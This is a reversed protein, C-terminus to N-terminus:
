PDRPPDRPHGGMPLGKQMDYKIQEGYSLPFYRESIVPSICLRCFAEEGEETGSYPWMCVEFRWEEDARRRRKAVPLTEEDYAYLDPANALRGLRYLPSPNGLNRACIPVKFIIWNCSRMNYTVHFSVLLFM